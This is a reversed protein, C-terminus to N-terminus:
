PVPKAFMLYVSCIIIIANEGWTNYRPENPQENPQEYVNCNISVGALEQRESLVNNTINKACTIICIRILAILVILLICALLSLLNNVMFGNYDTGNPLLAFLPSIVFMYLLITTTIWYVGVWNVQYETM